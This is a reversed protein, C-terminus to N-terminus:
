RKWKLDMLFRTIMVSIIVTVMIIIEHTPMYISILLLIIVVLLSIYGLIVSAIGFFKDYKYSIDHIKQLYKNM